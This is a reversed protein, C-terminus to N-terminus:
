TFAGEPRFAYRDSAIPAHYCGPIVMGLEGELRDFSPKAGFPSLLDAWPLAGRRLRLRRGPFFHNRCISQGPMGDARFPRFLPRGTVWYRLLGIVWPPAASQGPFFLNWRISEIAIFQMLGSLAICAVVRYTDDKKIVSFTDTVKKAEDWGIAGPRGRQVKKRFPWCLLSYRGFLYTIGKQGGSRTCKPLELIHILAM